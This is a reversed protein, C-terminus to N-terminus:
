KSKDWWTRVEEDVSQDVVVYQEAEAEKSGRVRRIRENMKRAERVYHLHFGMWVAFAIVLQIAIIFLKQGLTTDTGLWGVSFAVITYVLCGIGLHILMKVPMSLGEKDYVVSPAGWGIGCVLAGIGMKTMRYNDLTFQGGEALDNIVCVVCFIFAATGVGMAIRKFMGKM